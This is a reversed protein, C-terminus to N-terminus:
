QDSSQGPINQTYQKIDNLLQRRMDATFAEESTPQDVNITKQKKLINALAVLNQDNKISANQLSIIVPSLVVADNINKIM